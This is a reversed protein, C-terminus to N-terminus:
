KDNKEEMIKKIMLDFKEIDKQRIFEDKKHAQALSGPGFCFTKIGAKNLFHMESFAKFVTSSKKGTLMELEKVNSDKKDKRIPEIWKRKTWTVFPKDLEKKLFNELDKLNDKPDVRIDIKALASEPIVNQQFGCELINVALIGKDRKEFNDILSSLVKALHNGAHIDRNFECTHRQNCKIEIDIGAIGLQEEQIEINTPEGLIAFKFDRLNKENVAKRIGDFDGKEEGVTILLGNKFKTETNIFNDIMVALASKMDSAGCGIIKNGKIQFNIKEAPVTDCHGCFLIGPKTGEKVALINWRGESVPTRKFEINNKIFKKEIFNLIETENGSISEISILEKVLKLLDTRVM